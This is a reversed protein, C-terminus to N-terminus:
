DGQPYLPLRMEFETGIGPPTEHDSFSRSRVYFRGGHKATIIRYSMALHTEKELRKEVSFSKLVEEQAAPSLGPGNDAIVVSVWRQGGSAVDKPPRCLATSITIRPPESVELVMGESGMHWTAANEQRSTRELLADLCNTLINMFVQSLQGGFCTVPPLPDYDRVVEIQTTLRSKLLLVISDIIQHIDAAKPYVDDIHCFNQLSLALQKLRDAGGQISRITSPLDERLYDLEIEDRLNVIDGPPEPLAAEYATILTMLQDCYRSVHSLNGWIFGLPDLIEHSVGDVLRGLAAMKENQLMQAQVREYRVQTEIGRIQWHARHLDHIHLLRDGRPLKVVIPEGQQENPRRLALQAAALIPTTHGLVLPSLRAYSYMVRLPQALFLDIGKPRLLYELFRQRSLIGVSRGGDTLLIGPLAPDGEFCQAAQSGLDSIELSTDWLPLQALVSKTGLAFVEAEALTALEDYESSTVANEPNSNVM